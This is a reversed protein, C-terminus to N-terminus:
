LSSNGLCYRIHLGFGLRVRLGLAAIEIVINVSRTLGCEVLKVLLLDTTDLGDDVTMSDVWAIDMSVRNMDLVIGAREYLIFTPRLMM